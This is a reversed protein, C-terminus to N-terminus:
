FDAEILGLTNSADAQAAFDFDTIWHDEQKTPISFTGLVVANLTLAYLKGKYTNFLAMAMQPATGILQNSIELTQGNTDPWSYSLLVPFGSTVDAESFTFAAPTPESGDVAPTFSFEGAAPESAVQLMQDQTLGNIVGLTATATTQAPAVSAAIAHKENFVPRNLGMATPLGFYVQSLLDPPPVIMKGKGTVAIKGRLIDLSFQFQGYLDKLSGKFDVQVEQLVPFNYSSPNPALNGVNPTAILVGSGGQFNM